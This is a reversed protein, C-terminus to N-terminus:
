AWGGQMLTRLSVQAWQNQTILTFMRQPQQCTPMVAPYLSVASILAAPGWKAGSARPPQCPSLGRRAPLPQAM